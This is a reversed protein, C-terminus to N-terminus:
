NRKSIVYPFFVSAIGDNKLNWFSSVVNFKNTFMLQALVNEIRVIFHLSHVWSCSYM